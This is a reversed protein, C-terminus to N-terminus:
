QNMSVSNEFSKINEKREKLKQEYDSIKTKYFSILEKIVDCAASLSYLGYDTINGGKEAITRLGDQITKIHDIAEQQSEGHIHKARDGAVQESAKLKNLQGQLKNINGQVVARSTTNFDEESVLKELKLLYDQGIADRENIGVESSGLMHIYENNIEKLRKNRLGNLANKIVIYLTDIIDTDKEIKNKLKEEGIKREEEEYNTNLDKELRNVVDTIQGM